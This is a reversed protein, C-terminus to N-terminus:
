VFKPSMRTSIATLLGGADDSGLTVVGGDKKRITVADRGSVTWLWGLRPTWNIGFGHWFDTEALQVDAIEDFRIKFDMLSVGLNWSIGQEDVRTTLASVQQVLLAIGLALGFGRPKKRRLLAFFGLAALPWRPLQKHRYIEM